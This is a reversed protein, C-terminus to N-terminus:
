TKTLNEMGVESFIHSMEDFTSTTLNNRIKVTFPCLINLDHDSISKGTCLFGLSDYLMCYPISLSVL